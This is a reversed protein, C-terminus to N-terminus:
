KSLKLGAFSTHSFVFCFLLLWVFCHVTRFSCYGLTCVWTGAYGCAGSYLAWVCLSQGQNQFIYVPGYMTYSQLHSCLLYGYKFWQCHFSFSRVTHSFNQHLINWAPIPNSALYTIFFELNWFQQSKVHPSSIQMDKWTTIRSNWRRGSVRAM